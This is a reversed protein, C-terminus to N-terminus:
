GRKYFPSPVVTAQVIERKFDIGVDTGVGAYENAVFAMAISKQLTPGFCGSTVEGVQVDNMLVPTGQRATRRGSLELGVLLKEPGAENVAQIVDSGLFRGEKNVAWGMGVSIPDTEETLEHGYLPLSAEIRLTDRAGLGCAYIPGNRLKDGLMGALMKAMDAGCVLEFGDEGTYGSRYVEVAAGMVEGRTCGFRRLTQPDEELQEALLPGLEDFVKPGQFAAMATELTRDIVQCDFEIDDIVEHFHALLKERNSANCVMSFDNPWRAVIVDDRIGGNVNTVFGYRSQGPKMAAVDRTTVLALFEATDKGEFRLRGMHSVDFFAGSTRCRQHEEVISGYALPMEWGAFDVMRGSLALHLDHFPTKRLSKSPASATGASEETM